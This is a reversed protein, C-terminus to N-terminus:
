WNCIAPLTVHFISGARRRGVSIPPKDNARADGESTMPRDKRYDMFGTAHALASDSLLPKAFGEYSGLNM